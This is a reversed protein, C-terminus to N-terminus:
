GHLSWSSRAFAEAAFPGLLLGFTIATTKVSRIM